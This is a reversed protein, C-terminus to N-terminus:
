KKASVSKDDDKPLLYLNSHLSSFIAMDEGVEVISGYRFAGSGERWSILKIKPIRDCLANLTNRDPLDTGLLLKLEVQGTTSGVDYNINLKIEKCTVGINDSLKCVSKGKKGESVTYIMDTVDTICVLPSNDNYMELLSELALLNEIARYSLRAPRKEMSLVRGSATMLIAARNPKYDVGLLSTGHEKLVSYEESLRINSLNAIVVNQSHPNGQLEDNMSRIAELVPDKEKMYVVSFSIDSMPKGLMSDDDGHNGLHYVTRGCPAERQPLNTTFYWSTKSLLRSISGTPKWYGKPETVVIEEDVIGKQSMFVGRTALLDARVNGVDGSHGRVWKIEFNLVNGESDPLLLKEKLALLKLWEDRNAVDTGDQKVWGRKIWGDIWENLGKKVYESDTFIVATEIQDRVTLIYDLAKVMATIEAINNTVDGEFSGWIDVYHDITIAYKKDGGDIYGNATPLAKCGSGQKPTENVFLYGHIGYGGKGRSPKCGGDTYMVIGKKAESM